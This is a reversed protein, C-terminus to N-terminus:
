HATLSDLTPDAGVNKTGVSRDNAELIRRMLSLIDDFADIQDFAGNLYAYQLLSRLTDRAKAEEMRDIRRVMSLAARNLGFREIQSKVYTGLDGQMESINQGQRTMESMIRRFDDRSMGSEDLSNGEM